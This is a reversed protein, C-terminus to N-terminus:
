IKLNKKTNWGLEVIKEIGLYIATEDKYTTVWGAGNGLGHYLIVVADKINNGYFTKLPGKMSVVIKELLEVTENMKLVYDADYDFVKDYAIQKWDLGEKDYDDICMDRVFKHNEMFKYWTEVLDHKSLKKNYVLDFGKYCNIIEM